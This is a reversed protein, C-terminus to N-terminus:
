SSRTTPARSAVHARLLLFSAVIMLVLSPHTSWFHDLLLGFTSWPTTWHLVGYIRKVRFDKVEYDKGSIKWAALRFSMQTSFTHIKNMGPLQLLFRSQLQCYLSTHCCQCFFQIGCNAKELSTCYSYMRGSRETDRQPVPSDPQIFSIPLESPLKM